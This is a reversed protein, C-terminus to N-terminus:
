YVNLENGQWNASTKRKKEKSACISFCVRGFRIKKKEKANECNKLQMQVKSVRRRKAGFFFRFTQFLISVPSGWVRKIVKISNTGQLVKLTDM